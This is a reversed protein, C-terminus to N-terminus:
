FAYGFALKGTPFLGELYSTGAFSGDASLWYYGLGGGLNINFGSDWIWGWGAILQPGGLTGSVDSTGGQTAFGITAGPELYFGSFVKQFWATLSLDFVGGYVNPEGWYGYIFSAGGNITVNQHIAHSVGVGMQGWFWSFPNTYINWKPYDYKYKNKEGVPVLQGEINSYEKDNVEGAKLTSVNMVLITLVVLSALLLIEKKM